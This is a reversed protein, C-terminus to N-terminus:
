VSQVIGISRTCGVPSEQYEPFLDCVQKAAAMALFFEKQQSWLTIM